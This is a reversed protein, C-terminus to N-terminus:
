LCKSVLDFLDFFQERSAQSKELGLGILVTRHEDPNKTAFASAIQTAYLQAVTQREPTAAGLLITATLHPMPLMEDNQSTPLSNEGGFPDTAGM